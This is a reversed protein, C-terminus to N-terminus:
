CVVNADIAATAARDIYDTAARYTVFRMGDLLWYASHNPDRKIIRGKYERVTDETDSWVVHYKLTNYEITM